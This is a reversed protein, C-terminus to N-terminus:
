QKNKEVWILLKSLANPLLVDSEQIFTFEYLVKYYGFEVRIVLTNSKTNKSLKELLMDITLLPYFTSGRFFEKEIKIVIEGNDEELWKEADEFLHGLKKSYKIDAYQTM